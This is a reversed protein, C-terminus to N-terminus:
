LELMYALRSLRRANLDRLLCIGKRRRVSELAEKEKSIKSYRANYEKVLEKAKSLNEINYWM